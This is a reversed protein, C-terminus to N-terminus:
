DRLNYGKFPTALNGSKPYANDGVFFFPMNGEAFDLPCKPPLNLQGTRLKHALTSKHFINADARKRSAGSEVIIFRHKAESVAMGHFDHCAEAEIIDM